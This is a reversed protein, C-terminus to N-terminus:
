PKLRIDVFAQKRIDILWNQLEELYKRKQLEEKAQNRGMEEGLDQQRTETVEAIHWGIETKFPSSVEGVKLNQIAAEFEPPLFGPNVWQLDGGENATTLDSSFTKALNGFDKGTLLQSRIKELKLKADMDTVTNSLKILIHRVHKQTVLNTPANKKETLKLLHFGASTQIPRSIEGVALTPLVSEFATPLESLKKNEFKKEQANIKLNATSQKPDQGQRLMHVFNDLKKKSEGLSEIPIFYHTLSYHTEGLPRNTGLFNDIEQNSVQLQRGIKQRRLENIQIEQRLDEKFVEFDIGSQKLSIKFANVDMQNQKSVLELARSLMEDTVEIGLEKAMQHQIANLIMQELVQQRLINEPPEKENSKVAEKAEQFKRLFATKLVPEDNVIAVIEEAPEQIAAFTQFSAGLIILTLLCYIKNMVM